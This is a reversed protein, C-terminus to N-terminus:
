CRRNTCSCSSARLDRPDRSWCSPSTNSARLPCSRKCPWSWMRSCLGNPPPPPSVTLTSRLNRLCPLQALLYNGCNFICLSQSTSRHAGAWFFFPFFFCVNKYIYSILSFHSRVEYRVDRLLMWYKFCDQNHLRMQSYPLTREQVWRLPHTATSNLHNLRGTRWTCKWFM